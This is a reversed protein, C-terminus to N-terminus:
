ALDVKRKLAEIGVEGSLIVANVEPPKEGKRLSRKALPRIEVNIVSQPVVAHGPRLIGIRLDDFLQTTSQADIMYPGRVNPRPLARVDLTADVKMSIAAKKPWM